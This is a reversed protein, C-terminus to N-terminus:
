HRVGEHRHFIFLLGPIGVTKEDHIQLVRELKPNQQEATKAVEKPNQLDDQAVVWLTHRPHKDGRKTAEAARLLMAHYKPGSSKHVYPVSLITGLPSM